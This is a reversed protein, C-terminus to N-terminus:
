THLKVAPELALVVGGVTIEVFGAPPAEPTVVPVLMVAVNLSAIAGKVTVVAVKVNCFAAVGTEPVTVQTPVVATKVGNLLRAGPAVYVATM